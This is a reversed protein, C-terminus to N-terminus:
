FRAPRGFRCLGVRTLLHDLSSKSHRPLHITLLVAAPKSAGASTGIAVIDRNAM